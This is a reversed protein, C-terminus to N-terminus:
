PVAPPADGDNMRRAGRLGAVLFLVSAVFLWVPPIAVLAGLAGLWAYRAGRGIVVTLQYKWMPYRALTALIRMPYHPVIPLACTAVLALFPAKAYWRLTWRTLRHGRFRRTGERSLIRALLEMNWYEIVVTAVTGVLVVLWLSEREGLYVIAGDYPLPALSNGAFTYPVLYWLRDHAPDMLAGAVAAASAVLMVAPWLWAPADPALAAPADDAAVDFAAPLSSM